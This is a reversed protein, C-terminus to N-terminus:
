LTFVVQFYALHAGLANCSLLPSLFIVKNDAVKTLGLEDLIENIKEHTETRTYGERRKLMAALYLTERVTLTGM